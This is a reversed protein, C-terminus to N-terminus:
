GPLAPDRHVIRGEVMSLLVRAEGISDPPAATVDRDAVVLDAFKGQEISGTDRDLHNVRASGMTFAHLATSLDLREEPLLAEREPHDFPVRTLAVQIQHFPDATTVSWDSGMALRAGSRALTAFPYLHAVREPGLVPFNLDRMQDDLCAWFAQINATVGLTAFRPIDDPHVIQLHAIHHRNPGPGNAARAAEFADLAERVARDGIAHVHVQFGERDLRVVHRALSEPDVFSLGGGASSGDGELYPEIMAATFNEVIGDQMMKVTSARLRGSVSARLERLEEVQEQGRNRDWWLSSVVRATLEGREALDRYARLTEPTVWADQWATIGLGHLHRQALLIARQWQDVGVPPLWRKVLEMAGEHLTGSPEGAGDREIRGDPPDSTRRDIGALELARSNVWAGHGDRNVLFAPRDPVVVDLPDRAPTGHPFRDLAWGGGLIWPDDRHTQAYEHIAELYAESGGLDTLDCRMGELGSQPPHVHADQFGPLITRTGVDVIETRAAALVRVEDWTGVASIRGERVAVAEAVPLSPNMTLARGRLIMQPIAVARRM